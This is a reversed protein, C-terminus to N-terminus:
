QQGRFEAMLRLIEERLAFFEARLAAITGAPLLNKPAVKALAAQTTHLHNLARKLCAVIFPGDNLDRGYGLSDLAGALKAGTIQYADVLQGLDADTNRGEDLEESQQWLAMAGDFARRTLPHQIEGDADRVWDVGETAPDPPPSAEATSGPNEDAESWPDDDSQERGKPEAAPKRGAGGDEEDLAEELWEWDMEKAIIRERDPHHEYKDLLEMYKDTRADSERMLKEYDFEDWEKDLPPEHTQAAIAESLKGMFGAFGEAADRQRQQEEEPTLRWAPPSIALKYEHSEVVVRGNAESFWELYLSNAWHEPTSQGAEHREIFEELPLDPVRVKRSATLDGITGRQRTNLSADGPLPFTDGPNQFTLLCGALDPHANGRLELTLPQALGHLWICGRVVGRERNDIEGKRVSDHIRWAM